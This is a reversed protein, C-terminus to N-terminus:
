YSLLNQPASPRTKPARDGSGSSQGRGTVRRTAAKPITMIYLSSDVSHINVLTQGKIISKFLAAHTCTPASVVMRSLENFPKRNPLIVGDLAGDLPDTKACYVQTVVSSVVVRVCVCVCVCLTIESALVHCGATGGGLSVWPRTSLCAM